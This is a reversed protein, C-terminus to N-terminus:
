EGHLSWHIDTEGLSLAERPIWRASGDAFGYNDGGLHRSAAPLNSADGAANWGIDSEFIAVTGVLDTVHLLRTGDLAENLAFDCAPDREREEVSPCQFVLENKTYDEFVDCWAAAPPFVDANDALYMQLSLSLNKINSLCVAKRRREKHYGGPWVHSPLVSMLLALVGVFVAGGLLFGGFMAVASERGSGREGRAERLKRVRRGAVAGVVLAVLGLALGLVLFGPGEAIALFGLAILGLAGTGLGRAFWLRWVAGRRRSDDSM